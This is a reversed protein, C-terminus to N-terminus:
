SYPLLANRRGLRDLAKKFRELRKPGIIAYSSIDAGGRTSPRPDFGTAAAGYYDAFWEVPSGTGGQNGTGQDWAGGPAHMLRQFYRRDGDNLVQADFLHGVEHARPFAGLPGDGQWYITANGTDTAQGLDPHGPYAGHVYRVTPPAPMVLPDLLSPPRKAM